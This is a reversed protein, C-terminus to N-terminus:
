RGGESHGAQPARPLPAGCQQSNTIIARTGWFEWNKKLTRWQGENKTLSFPRDINLDSEAIRYMDSGITDGHRIYHFGDKSGVYSVWSVTEHDYSHIAADLEQRNVTKVCGTLLLGAMFLLSAIKKMMEDAL